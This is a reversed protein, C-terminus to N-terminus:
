TKRDLHPIPKCELAPTMPEGITNTLRFLLEGTAPDRGIALIMRETGGYLVHDGLELNEAWEAGTRANEMDVELALLGGVLYM